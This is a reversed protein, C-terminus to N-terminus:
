IIEDACGLEIAQEANINWDKHYKQIDVLMEKSINTNNVIFNQIEEQTNNIEKVYDNLEEVDQRINGKISVSHIMLKGHKTIFRKHGAVFIVFGCSACRGLCYTHIPTKSKSIVDVLAWMADTCGGPSSIYLQIPKRKYDIIQQEKEDDANIIDVINFIISSVTKYDIGDCLYITRTDKNVLTESM